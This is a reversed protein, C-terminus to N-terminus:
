GYGIIPVTSLGSSYGFTFASGTNLPKPLFFDWVLIADLSSHFLSLHVNALYMRAVGAVVNAKAPDDPFRLTYM